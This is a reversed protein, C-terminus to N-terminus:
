ASLLPLLSGDAVRDTVKGGAAARLRRRKGPFSEREMLRRLVFDYEAFLDM